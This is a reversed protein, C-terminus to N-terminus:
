VRIARKRLRQQSSPPDVDELDLFKGMEKVIESTANPKALDKARASMRRLRSPNGLWGSVISAIAEPQRAFTGVGQETVYKVNPAEQGPLFGSLVIPLGKILAEAITGPGAKSVILDSATMWDGMDHVFGKVIVNVGWQRSELRKRLLQNKGCVVVIQAGNKGRTRQIKDDLAVAVREIGGVGDGGGVVLVIPGDNKLGLEDRVEAKTRDDGWFESRVPLGYQKLQSDVLGCRRAIRKVADSPVFCMDVDKHFWTPHAGGLDTVVTVFPVKNTGRRRGIGGGSMSGLVRLPIFQCLPHVSVILHPKFRLLYRHFARHAWFHSVEETLRRTLPFKGYNWVARWLPPNKALFSYGQPFKDFPSGAIETWFDIIRVDVLSGYQNEFASALAEASARHGGGTDSILMLVRRVGGDEVERSMIAEEDDLMLGGLGDDNNGSNWGGNYGGTMNNMNIGGHHLRRVDGTHNCSFLALM